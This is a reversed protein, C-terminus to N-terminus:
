VVSSLAKLYDEDARWLAAMAIPLAAFCPELMEVVHPCLLFFNWGRRAGYSCGGSLM